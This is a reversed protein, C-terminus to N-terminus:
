EMNRPIRPQLQEEVLIDFKMELFQSWLLVRWLLCHEDVGRLVQLKLHFADQLVVVILINDLMVKYLKWCFHTIASMGLLLDQTALVVGSLWTLICPCCTKRWIPHSKHPEFFLLADGLLKMNLSDCLKGPFGNLLMVV